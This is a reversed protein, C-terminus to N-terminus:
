SRSVSTGRVMTSSRRASGSRCSGRHDDCGAMPHCDCSVRPHRRRDRCISSCRWSRRSVRAGRITLLSPMLNKPRLWCAALSTISLVRIVSVASQAVELLTRPRPLAQHAAACPRRWDSERPDPAGGQRAGRRTAPAFHRRPFGSPAPVPTCRCEQQPNSGREGSRSERVASPVELSNVRRQGAKALSREDALFSM